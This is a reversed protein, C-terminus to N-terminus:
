VNLRNGFMFLVIAITGFIIHLFSVDRLLLMQVVIWGLLLAGEWVILRPYNQRKLIASFAALMSMLGIATFLIAGPISFDTFPSHQLATVGIEMKAGSPDAMFLWGAVLACIGTFLLLIIAIFRITRM